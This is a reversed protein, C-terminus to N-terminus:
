DNQGSKPKEYSEYDELFLSPGHILVKCEQKIALKRALDLAEQKTDFLRTVRKNGTRRVAWKDGRIVVHQARHKM